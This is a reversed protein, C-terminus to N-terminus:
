PTIIFRPRRFLVMAFSMAVFVLTCGVFLIPTFPFHISREWLVLAQFRALMIWQMPILQWLILAIGIMSTIFFTLAYDIWSLRFQPKLASTRVNNMVMKSFGAPASVVPYSQIADELEIYAKQDNESTSNM